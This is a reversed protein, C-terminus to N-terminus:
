PEIDIEFPEINVHFEECQIVLPRGNALKHYAQTKSLRRPMMYRDILKEALLDNFRTKYEAFAAENRAATTTFLKTESIREGTMIEPDTNIITLGYTIM